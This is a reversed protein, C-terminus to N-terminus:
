LGPRNFWSALRCIKSVLSKAVKSMTGTNCRAWFFGLVVFLIWFLFAFYTGLFKLYLFFCVICASILMTQKSRVSTLRVLLTNWM